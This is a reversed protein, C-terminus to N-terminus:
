SVGAGCIASNFLLQEGQLIDRKYGLVAYLIAFSQPWSSDGPLWPRKLSCHKAFLLGLTTEM